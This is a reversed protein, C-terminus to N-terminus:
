GGTTESKDLNEDDHHVRKPAFPPDPDGVAGGTKRTAVLPALSSRTSSSEAAIACLFGWHGAKALGPERGSEHEKDIHRQM